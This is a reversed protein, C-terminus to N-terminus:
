KIQTDKRVHQQSVLNRLFRTYTRRTIELAICTNYFLKLNKLKSEGRWVEQTGRYLPTPVCLFNVPSYTGADQALQYKLASRRGIWNGQSAAYKETEATITSTGGIRVHKWNKTYSTTKLQGERYVKGGQSM